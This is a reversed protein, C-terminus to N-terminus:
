NRSELIKTPKSDVTTRPLVEAKTFGYNCESGNYHDAMLLIAQNQKRTFQELQKRKRSIRRAKIALEKIGGINLKEDQADHHLRGGLSFKHVSKLHTKM